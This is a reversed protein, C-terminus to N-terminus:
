SVDIREVEVVRDAPMAALVHAVIAPSDAFRFGWGRAPPVFLNRAKDGCDVYVASERRDVLVKKVEGWGVRLEERGKREIAYGREDLVLQARTKQQWAFAMVGLGAPALAWLQGAVAIVASLGVAVPLLWRAGLLLAHRSTM